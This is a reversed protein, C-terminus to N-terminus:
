VEREREWEARAEPSMLLGTREIRQRIDELEVPFCRAGIIRVTIAEVKEKEKKRHPIKWQGRIFIVPFVSPKDLIIGTGPLLEAGYYRIATNSVELVLFRKKRPTTDILILVMKFFIGVSLVGCITYLFLSNSHAIFMDWIIGVFALVLFLSLGMLRVPRLWIPHYVALYDTTQTVTAICRLIFGFWKPFLMILTASGVLIALPAGLVVGKSVYNWFRQYDYLIWIGVAILALCFLLYLIKELFIKLPM